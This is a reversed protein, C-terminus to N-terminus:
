AAEEVVLMLREVYAVEDVTLSDWMAAITDLDVNLEEAVEHENRCVSLAAAFAELSILLRAAMRCVVAEQRHDLVDDLCREDGRLAHIIEHALTSRREAHTLDYHLWIIRTDPDWAGLLDGLNTTRIEIRDLQTM